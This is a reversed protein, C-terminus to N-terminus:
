LSYPRRWSSPTPRDIADNVPAVKVEVKAGLESFESLIRGCDSDQVQFELHKGNLVADSANKASSLSFDFERRLKQTFNIKQFGIDWGSIVITKM